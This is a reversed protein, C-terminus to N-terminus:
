SPCGAEPLPLCRHIGPHLPSCVLPHRLEGLDALSVSRLRSHNSDGEEGGGFERRSGSASPASRPSFEFVFVHFFRAGLIVGVFLYVIYTDLAEETLNEVEERRAVRKLFLYALIFGLIYPLAYWRIGFDGTILIRWGQIRNM